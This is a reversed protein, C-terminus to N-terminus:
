KSTRARGRGRPTNCTMRPVDATPITLPCRRIPCDMPVPPEVAPALQMRRRQPSDLYFDMTESPAHIIQVGKERAAAIVPNMRKAIEECRESAFTCWHKDWMDCILIATQAVATGAHLDERGATRQGPAGRHTRAHCCSRARRGYAGRRDPLPKRAVEREAAWFLANALMRKFSNNEFDGVGGLSTYFVRGGNHMRTWAVPQWGDSEPTAGRVLV